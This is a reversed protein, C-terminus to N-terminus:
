RRERYRQLPTKIPPAADKLVDPHKALYEKAWPEINFAFTTWRGVDAGRYIIEKSLLAGVTGDEVELYQTETEASLYKALIFREGPSLTRLYNEKEKAASRKELTATSLGWLKTILTVLLAAGSVFAAIAVWGRYRQFEGLALRHIWSSPLLLLALSAVFVTGFQRPSKIWDIAKGIWEFMAKEKEKM